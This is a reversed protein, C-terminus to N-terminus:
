TVPCRDYRRGADDPIPWTATSRELDGVTVEVDAEPDGDPALHPHGPGPPACHSSAPLIMHAILAGAM